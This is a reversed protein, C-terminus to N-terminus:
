KSDSSASDSTSEASGSSSSGVLQPRLWPSASADRWLSGGARAARLVLCAHSVCVQNRPEVCQEGVQVAHNVGSGCAMGPATSDSCRSSPMPTPGRSRSWCRTGSARRLHGRVQALETGRRFVVLHDTGRLGCGLQQSRQQGGPRRTRIVPLGASAWSISSTPRFGTCLAAPRVRHGHDLTEIGLDAPLVQGLGRVDHGAAGQPDGGVRVHGDRLGAAHRGPLPVRTAATARLLRGSARKDGPLGSAGSNWAAALRSAASRGSTTPSRSSM